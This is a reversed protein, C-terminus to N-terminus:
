IEKTEHTHVLRENEKLQIKQLQWKEKRKQFRNQQDFIAKDFIMLLVPLMTLVLTMSFLAGRGVLEGIEAIASVTSTFSLLYGVSTLIMGSTLISLGSKTIASLASEKKDMNQQRFDIYNNTLLISYDITAGLQLCNVIIYGMFIMQSGALYPMAMNFFIAIEIPVMVVLPIILSRFTIAVVIAVGLLSLLNVRKYDDTIMEKIDMTSPTNGVIHYDDEYFSRTINTIENCAQFALDSEGSSRVYILMRTYHDSRVDSLMSKPLFSEPVGEPLLSPISQVSQVYYLDELTQSLKREQVPSGNPVMVLMLNSKGFRKNIENAEEYAVTGESCGLADNGYLFSNMNQGVYAPITCLFVFAFVIYRAKFILEAVPRFSKIFSKHRYKEIRKMNRLILAPMLILVTILSIVIGKALVIGIDRGIHFEMLCLVIFGVITTAGSSLISSVSQRIANSIADEPSLGNQMERTFSHLLFISYDMAIALQLIAAVSFTFFSITGLFINTGLNIIIAIGMVLLFLFPEFWSTTTVCLIVVIMIIGLGFALSIEKGLTDNLSKNDVASGSFYGKDGTIERIKDLAKHTQADSDGGEFTLHMVAYGDKYYDSIDEEALFDSSQYVNVTSDLWLVMDVGQVKEIEDKYVKAQYVTVPGIMVRATGPYGFEDEMITLGHKSPAYEPLYKSLDYNVGVFPACIASLLIIIFFIKEIIKRKHVIVHIIKDTLPNHSM